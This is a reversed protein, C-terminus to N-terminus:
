EFRRAISTSTKEAWDKRRDTERARLRAIAHRVRGRRDPEHRPSSGANSWTARHTGAARTGTPTSNSPWTGYSM